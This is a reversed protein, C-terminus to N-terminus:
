GEHDKLNIGLYKKHYHKFKEYRSIGGNKQHHKVVKKAIDNGYENYLMRFAESKAELSQVIVGDFDFIVGKINKQM